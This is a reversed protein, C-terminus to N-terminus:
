GLPALESPARESPFLFRDLFAETWEAGFVKDFMRSGRLNERHLRDFRRAASGDGPLYPLGELVLAAFERTYASVAQDLLAAAREGRAEPGDHYCIACETGLEAFWPPPTLTRLEAFREALARGRRGAGHLDVVFVLLRGRLEVGDFGLIPLGLEPRPYAAAELMLLRGSSDRVSYTRLREIPGGSFARAELRVPEAGLAGERLALEPELPLPSLGLCLADLAARASELPPLASM